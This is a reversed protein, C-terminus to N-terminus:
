GAKFYKSAIFAAGLLVVGLIGYKSINEVQGSRNNNFDGFYVSQRSTAASSASPNISGGAAVNPLGPIM